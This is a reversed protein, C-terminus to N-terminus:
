GLRSLSLGKERRISIDFEETDREKYKVQFFWWLKGNM